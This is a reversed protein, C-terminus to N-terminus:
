AILNAHKKLFYPSFPVRGEVDFSTFIEELKQKLLRDSPHSALEENTSLSEARSLM